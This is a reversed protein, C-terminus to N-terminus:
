KLLNDGVTASILNLLFQVAMPDYVPLEPKNRVPKVKEDIRGETIVQSIYLKGKGHLPILEVVPFRISNGGSTAYANIKMEKGEFRLDEAPVTVGNLGNWENMLGSTFGYNLEKLEPKLTFSKEASRANILSVTVDFPMVWKKQSDKKIALSGFDLFIVSMERKLSRKILQVIEPDDAKYRTWSEKGCLLVQGWSVMPAKIGWTKLFANIDEEYDPSFVLIKTLRSSKKPQIVNFRFSSGSDAALGASDGPTLIFVGSVKPAPIMLPITSIGNPTLELNIMTKWVRAGSKEKVILEQNVKLGEACRNKFVVDLRILSGPLYNHYSEGFVVHYKQDDSAYKTMAFGEAQKVLVLSFLLVVKWIFRRKM